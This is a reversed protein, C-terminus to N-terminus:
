ASFYLRLISSFGGTCGLGKSSTNPFLNAYNGNKTFFILLHSKKVVRQEKIQQLLSEEDVILGINFSAL